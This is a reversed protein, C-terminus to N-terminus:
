SQLILRIIVQPQVEDLGVLQLAEELSFGDPLGLSDNSLLGEVGTPGLLSGGLLVSTFDNELSLTDNLALSDDDLLNQDGLNLPSGLLQEEPADVEIGTNTSQGNSKLIYEGTIM